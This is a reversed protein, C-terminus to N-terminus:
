IDDIFIEASFPNAPDTEESGAQDGISKEDDEKCRPQRSRSEPKFVIGRITGSIGEINIIGVGGHEALAKADDDARQSGEEDPLQNICVCEM